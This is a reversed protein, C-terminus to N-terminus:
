RTQGPRSGPGPPQGPGGRTSEPRFLLLSMQSHSGISAGNKLIVVDVQYLGNTSVMSIDRTWAYDPYVDGFDGSESGEFLRNTIMLDAMVSAVDVQDPKIAQAARLNQTVLELIAFMVMFFIGMAIMVEILTFGRSHGSPLRM